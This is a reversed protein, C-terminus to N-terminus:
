RRLKVWTVTLEVDAIGAPVGGTPAIFNVGVSGNNPIETTIGPAFSADLEAGAALTGFDQSVAYADTDGGTIGVDVRAELTDDTFTESVGKVRIARIIGIRNEPSAFSVVSDGAGFDIGPFDYTQDYPADAPNASAHTYHKM